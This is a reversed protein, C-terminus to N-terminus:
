APEASKPIPNPVHCLRPQIVQMPWGPEHALVPYHAQLQTLGLIYQAKDQVAVTMVQRSFIQAVFRAQEESQLGQNQLFVIVRNKVTRAKNVHSLVSLFYPRLQQLYQASQPAPQLQISQELWQSVFLQMNASPHQSLSLVYDTADEVRFHRTILQRGLRQVMAQQHDCLALLHSLTWEEAAINNAFYDAAFTRTEPWRTDLIRLADDLHLRISDLNAQYYAQAQLRVEALAHRGLLAWQLVSLSAALTGGAQTLLLAGLEQAGKSRAQLLRWQVDVPLALVAGLLPTRCWNIIDRHVSSESGEDDTGSDSRFMVDVLQALLKGTFDADTALRTLVPTMAARVRAHASSALMAVLDVQHRLLDAPLVAFLRSGLSQRGADESQLLDRLIAPSVHAIGAPHVLLVETALAQQWFHRALLLECWADLGADSLQAVQSALLGHLLWQLDEQLLTIQAEPLTTTRVWALLNDLLALRTEPSASQALLRCADRVPPLPNSIMLLLLGDEQAYQEAAKSIFGLAFEAAPLYNAALLIMLCHLDPAQERYRHKIIGFALERTPLYASQLLEQLQPLSLQQCYEQNDALARAAFVHVGLCLSHRLLLHLQGPAADWLHPFAEQRHLRAPYDLADVTVPQWWTRASRSTQFQSDHQHLLQNFVMWNAYPSHYRLKTSWSRTQRHYELQRQISAKGAHADDCALLVGTAMHVFDPSSLNGLRRLTRWGRRRLYDRTLNSYAVRSDKKRIEDAYKVLRRELYVYRLGSYMFFLPWAKEFRQQLIGFLEADRRFEATKYLHRFARFVQLSVPLNKLQQLLIVRALPASGAEAIRDLQELWNDYRWGPWNNSSLLCLLVDDVAQKEQAELAIKWASQLEAPWGAVLSQAHQQAEENTCLALWAQAAIDQVHAYSSRQSLEFMAQSAGSDGCRGIAYAICYDLMDDASALLEVLRPVAAQLGREGIRWVTRTREVRSLGSWARPLLRDLLIKEQEQLSAPKSIKSVLTQSSHGWQMAEDTNAAQAAPAADDVQAKNVFGQALKSALLEAFISEAKDLSVAFPTRTSEQWEADPHGERLNVLYRADQGASPPALSLEIECHRESPIKRVLKVLKIMGQM